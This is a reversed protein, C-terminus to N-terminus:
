KKKATRPLEWGDIRRLNNFSLNDFDVYHGFFLRINDGYEITAMSLGCSLDVSLSKKDQVATLPLEGEAVLCTTKKIDQVSFVGFDPFHFSGGIRVNDKTPLRGELQSTLEYPFCMAYFGQVEPLWGTEGNSFIVYWENWFGDAYVPKKQGASEFIGRESYGIKMRGIVEFSKNNFVGTTGIQLPTLDDQLESMKGILELNMDNRVLSSNCYSCVAFVSAKSKFIVEAGCSPCNLKLM